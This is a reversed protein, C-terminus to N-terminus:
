RAWVRREVTESARDVAMITRKEVDRRRRVIEMGQYGQPSLAAMLVALVGDRQAKTLDGMRIGGRKVMTTPLNSWRKRQDEDKFNYVVKGRQGEDLSSLFKKAASSVEETTKGAAANDHAFSSSVFWSSLAALTGVTIIRKIM